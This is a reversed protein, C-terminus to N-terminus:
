SAGSDNERCPKVKLGDDPRLQRHRRWPGHTARSPEHRRGSHQDKEQPIAVIEARRDGLTEKLILSFRFFDRRRLLLTGPDELLQIGLMDDRLSVPIAM